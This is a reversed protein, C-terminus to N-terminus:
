FVWSLVRVYFWKVPNMKKTQDEAERAAREALFEEEERDIIEKGSFFDAEDSRVRTSKTFVKHGIFLGFFVPIGLYGTIFTKYKNVGFPEQNWRTFVDYNKTLAVIACIFLAVYSGWIGFPAVFPMMDDTLGQRKRARSWFIHSLLISMWTLLGLISTLNVFYGFVLTSSDSVNMFALLCFLASTCLAYIPVGKSNTRKFISPAKRDSALAYLTRSAIYLDTNCASFIFVLICGNIIHPFVDVGALVAAVVFPSAAASTKAKTAFALEESDYPVLMGVLLSSLCYFFAIRYFTLKIAKPITKRPNQAEAVTIGVLETGLYAFVANIMSSWFGLFRGLDGTDIYERFAGPNSWYRFGKRDRDPGGGLALVLAFIMLGIIVLIKFSSLWSEVEGFYKIGLLNVVLIVVLFIAIFGGPNVTERPLWFQIVLAAATLQNPTLIIYKFWLTWGLAFGLSPHCFRTAYGTFGSSMPLWAAMEGLAGMVLYVIFGISVYSIFVSGPGAQALARGTGIILGTGLAGGIAIMSVHRAQLGRHLQSSPDSEIGQVNVSKIDEPHNMSVAKEVNDLGGSASPTDPSNM